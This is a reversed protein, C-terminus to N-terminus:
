RNQERLIAKLELLAIGDYFDVDNEYYAPRIGRQALLLRIEPVTVQTIETLRGASYYSPTPETAIPM